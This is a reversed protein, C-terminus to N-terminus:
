KPWYRMYTFYTDYDAVKVMGSDIMSRLENFEVETLKREEDCPYTEQIAELADLYIKEIQDISASITIDQIKKRAAVLTGITDDIKKFNMKVTYSYQLTAPNHTRNVIEMNRQFEVERIQAFLSENCKNIMPTNLDLLEHTLLDKERFIELESDTLEHYLNNLSRGFREQGERDRIKIARELERDVELIQERIREKLPDNRKPDLSKLKKLVEKSREVNEKKEKFFLKM